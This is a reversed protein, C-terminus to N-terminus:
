QARFVRLAGKEIQSIKCVGLLVLCLVCGLGPILGFYSGVFAAKISIVSTLRHILEFNMMCSLFV